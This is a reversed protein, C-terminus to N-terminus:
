KYDMCNSFGFNLIPLHFISSLSIIHSILIPPPTPGYDLRCVFLVSLNRILAAELYGLWPLTEWDLEDRVMAPPLLRKRRALKVPRGASRRADLFGTFGDGADSSRPYSLETLAPLLELPSEGADLQLSRSFEKVLGDRVLLRRVNGFSRLIDRWFRRDAEDHTESSTSHARHDITLEAVASFLPSLINFIQAASSVQWDLHSCCVQLYLAYIKAREQPYARLFVAERHSTLKASRFSLNETTGMFQVLHSVSFTLQNFFIIQLKELLPATIRPLLAELYVGVGKFGFSRPSPLTVHTTISTFLLHREVDRNPVPALFSIELIELQPM